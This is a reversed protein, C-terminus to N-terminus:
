EKKLLQKVDQKVEDVSKQLADYQYQTPLTLIKAQCEGVDKTNSSVQLSLRGFWFAGALISIVLSIPVLTDKTIQKLTEM